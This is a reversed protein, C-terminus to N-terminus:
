FLHKDALSDQCYVGCVSVCSILLWQCLCSHFSEAQEHIYEKGKLICIFNSSNVASFIEMGGRGRTVAEGMEVM